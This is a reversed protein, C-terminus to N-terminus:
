SPFTFAKWTAGADRTTWITDGLDNVVRGDTLSEFGLWRASGLRPVDVKQWTDGVDTSRYLGDTTVVLVAHPAVAIPLNGAGTLTNTGTHWDAGGNGSSIVFSNAGGRPTCVAVLWGGGAAIATTDVENGAAGGGTQPCPEGHNTWSMGDDTSIFLASTASGAGGAPHGYVALYAAGSVRVLSVGSDMGPISGPLTRTTWTTSGLQATQVTLPCGPFCPTNVRIVNNDLTELAVAGGPLRQWTAGGDRTMFLATSSFAYGIRDTAFRISQVCPDDCTLLSVNAPPGAMSTWNAGDDSTHVMAPCLGGQGLTPELCKASGWAWGQSGVWTMDDVTFQNIGVARPLLSAVSATSAPQTAPNSVSPTLSPAATVSGAPPTVHRSASPHYHQVGVVTAAVTAVAVAAALPVGWTRWRSTRPTRDILVDDLVRREVRPSEPARAAHAVLTARLREEFDDHNM